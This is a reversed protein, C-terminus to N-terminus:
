GDIEPSKINYRETILEGRIERGSEILDDLLLGQERLATGIQDLVRTVIAERSTILVGDETELVAVLDGERLAHKHRFADPLTVQGEHEIRILRQAAMVYEEFAM